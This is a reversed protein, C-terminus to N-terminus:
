IEDLSFHIEQRFNEPIEEPHNDTGMMEYTVKESHYKALM